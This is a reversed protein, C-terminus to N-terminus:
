LSEETPPLRQPTNASPLHTGPLCPRGESTGLLDLWEQKTNHSIDTAARRRTSQHPSVITRLNVESSKLQPQPGSRAKKAPGRETSDQSAIRQRKGHVKENSRPIGTSM